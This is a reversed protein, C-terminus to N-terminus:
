SRGYCCRVHFSLRADRRRGSRKPRPSDSLSPLYEIFGGLGDLVLNMARM